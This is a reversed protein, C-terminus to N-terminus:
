PEAVSEAWDVGNLVLTDTRDAIPREFERENLRVSRVGRISGGQLQIQAAPRSARLDLVGDQMTVHLDAMPVGAAISLWGDRSTRAHSAGVLDLRVLNGGAELCHMVRADTEYDLIRCAGTDHSAAEGPRLLFLAVQEGTV